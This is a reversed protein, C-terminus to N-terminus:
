PLTQVYNTAPGNKNFLFFGDGVNVPLTTNWTGGVATATNYSQSGSNWTLVKSGATLVNGANINVDGGTTTAVTINGAYPITSGQFTYGVPVPINTSGGTLVAVTGVFTNTLQPAAVSNGNKVFFGTGPPLSPNGNWTGGVDSVAVLSSGNWTYIKSGAPLNAFLNTLQNGNGDDFPNAVMTYKAGGNITVNAYGVVNASYVQAESSVIGAVLAAAAILLTKKM